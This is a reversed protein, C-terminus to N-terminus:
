RRRPKHHKHGVKLNVASGATLSTGQPPTSSKVVLAGRRKGKQHRPKSVKGVGCNAKRLAAKARGLKKGALKPVVCTIAPDLHSRTYSIPASCSSTNGAADTATASFTATTGEAVQVTLGPSALEGASGIAVPTDRPPLPPIADYLQGPFGCNSGAYIRVTSGAEADGLIRPTGSLGGSGPDTRLLQPAPPAALDKQELWIGGPGGIRNEVNKCFDVNDPEGPEVPKASMDEWAGAIAGSGALGATFPVGSRPDAGGSSGATSLTIPSPGALVTCQEGDYKPNGSATLTGAAVGSLSLAGTAKDFSGTIEGIDFDVTVDAVIPEEIHTEFDPVGLTGDSIAGTLPNIQAAFPAAQPAEFLVADSLQVGVNARAETFTMSLPDASAPSACIALALLSVLAAIIKRPTM